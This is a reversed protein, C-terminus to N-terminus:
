GSFSMIAREMPLSRRSLAIPSCSTLLNGTNQQIRFKIITKTLAWWEDCDQSLQIWLVGEFDIEYIDEDELHDGEKRNGVLVEYTNSKEAM